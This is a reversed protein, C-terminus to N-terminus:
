QINDGRLQRFQTRAEAVFISGPHNMLIEKYLEQAKPLEHLKNEYIKALKFLADDVLSSYSFNTILEQYINAALAYNFDKEAVKAKRMLIDDALYHNPYENSISDLTALALTDEDRYILYDAAAFLQIPRAITDLDYNDSILIALEMADNAMLKSTSAKLADLNTKAWLVDGSFYATLAKKFKVDDILTNNPNREIIQSYLLTAEWISNYYLLVDAELTQLQIRKNNDLGRIAQGKKLVEMAKESDHFSFALFHAYDVILPFTGLNYGYNELLDVFLTNLESMAMRESKPSNQFQAYHISVNNMQVLDINIVPPTRELLYKLGDIAISYLGNNAAGNAFNLISTEEQKTRRDLSISQKLADEFNEEAVYLWILLRSIIINEPAAQITKYIEEKITKRISNDFDSRLLISLRSEVQSLTKEDDTLMLFYQKMMETYNRQYSYITSLYSYFKTDKMIKQAQLYTQEAYSLEGRTLFANATAVVINLKPELDDIIEDYVKISGEFDGKEKLIFGYTVELDPSKGKRLQRKVAKTAEDYQQLGILSNIYYVFYSSFGNEQYLQLMLPAAKEYDKLRYYEMALRTVNQENTQASVFVSICIFIISILKKM